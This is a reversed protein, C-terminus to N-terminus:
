QIDAINDNVVRITENLFKFSEIQRVKFNKDILNVKLVNNTLTLYPEASVTSNM